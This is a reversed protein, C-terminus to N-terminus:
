TIDHSAEKKEDDPSGMHNVLVNMMYSFLERCMLTAADHQDKEILFDIATRVGLWYESELVKFLEDKLERTPESNDAKEVVLRDFDKNRKDLEKKIKDEFYGM